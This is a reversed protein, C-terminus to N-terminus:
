NGWFWRRSGFSLQYFEDSLIRRHSLEEKGLKLFMKKGKLNTTDKAIKRYHEYANNEARIALGLIELVDNMNPEIEGAFEISSKVKYSTIETGEYEVFEGKEKLSTKLEYLKDYHKQEFNALQQLLNKGQENSVKEIADLYFKKSKQEADLAIEIAEFIDTKKESM